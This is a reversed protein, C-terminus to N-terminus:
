AVAKTKTHIVEIVEFGRGRLRRCLEAAHRRGDPDDDVVVTICDIYSPVADALAPMRSASGAAWAGLGTEMHLTLANELGEAIAVGLLDNPPALVIPSGASRGVTFKAQEGRERDFGDPLLRTIHVGRVANDAIALVGPEVDHAIGFAAILAPGFEGRPPLYGLTAPWVELQIGRAERLYREAKTGAVPRRLSWLWRAKGLREAASIRERAAAEAQARAIAAPDPRPGREDRAYGHEGCRACHYTAFDPDIRWIRMVKRRQRIAAHRLPGCFPCPVDFTGLRGGTIQAIKGLTIEGTM